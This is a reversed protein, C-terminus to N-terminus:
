SCPQPEWPGSDFIWLQYNWYFAFGFFFVRGAGGHEVGLRGHVKGEWWGRDEASDESSGHTSATAACAQERRDSVVFVCNGSVHLRLM